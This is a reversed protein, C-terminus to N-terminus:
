TLWRALLRESLAWLREGDGPADKLARPPELTTRAFYADRLGEARARAVVGALEDGAREVPVGIILNALKVFLRMPQPENALIKTKVLGPMYVNMATEPVRRNWERAFVQMAWQWRGLAKMSSFGARGSPEDFDIRELNLGVVALVQAGPTRRLAAALRWTLLARGLYGVAFNAEFGDPTLTHEQTIANANLLLLDLRDHTALFEDAAARVEDMRSLDAVLASVRAQPAAARLEAVTAECRARGRGTVVVEWGDRLLRRATAKGIGDTSGTIIAVPSM